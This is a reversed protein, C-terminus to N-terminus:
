PKQVLVWAEGEKVYLEETISVPNAKAGFRVNRWEALTGNYRVVKLEKCYAFAERPIFYTNQGRPRNCKESNTSNSEQTTHNLDSGTTELKTANETQDCSDKKEKRKFLRALCKM